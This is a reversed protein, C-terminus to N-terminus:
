SGDDIGGAFLHSLAEDAADIVRELSGAALRTQRVAYTDESYQDAPPLYVFGPGNTVNMVVVAVRPHRRRLESQLQSYAEGPHAVFATDGLRWVWVPHHRVDEGYDRSLRSARRTREQAARPPINEPRESRLPEEARVEVPVKLHIAGNTTSPSRATKSWLALPAGSEIVREFTLKTRPPLLTELASLAAYGLARGHKDAVATDSTYQERPALEGSAGQLFICHGGVASEVTSRLAGVFDPSLSTNSWGLTTPHCAYNVLTALLAGDASMIRGVLLTDDAPTHPNFGVIQRHEYRLDRSAAVGCRGWAWDVTADTLRAVAENTAGVAAAAVTKLYPGIFEGGPATSDESCISPGAHTHSLNLLVRSPDLAMSSLLESRVTWEDEHRQWWGLDLAILVYPDADDPSFVVSTLTLPSHVASATDHKSLGWIRAYIDLPPTINRRSIGALTRAAPLSWSAGVATM